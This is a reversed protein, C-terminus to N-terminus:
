LYYLVCIILIPIQVLNKARGRSSTYVHGLRQIIDSFYWFHSSHTPINRGNHVSKKEISWCNPLLTLSNLKM